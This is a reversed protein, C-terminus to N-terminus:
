KKEFIYNAVMYEYGGSSNSTILVYGQSRVEELAMSITLFNETVKASKLFMRELEITKIITSGDSILIKSFGAYQTEITRVILYSHENPASKFSMIGFLVIITGALFLSILTVKKM